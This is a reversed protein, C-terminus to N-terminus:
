RMCNCRQCACNRRVYAYWVFKTEKLYYHICSIARFKGGHEFKVAHQAVHQMFRSNEEAADLQANPMIPLQMCLQSAALCSIFEQVSLPFSQM